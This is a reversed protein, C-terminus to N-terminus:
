FNGTLDVKSLSYVTSDGYVSVGLPVNLSYDISNTSLLDVKNFLQYLEDNSLTELM